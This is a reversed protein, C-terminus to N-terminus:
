DSFATYEWASQIERSGNGFDANTCVANGEIIGAYAAGVTQFWSRSTGAIGTGVVFASGGWTTAGAIGRDVYPLSLRASVAGAGDTGPDGTLFIEVRCKGDRRIFYYYTNTTFLPATGGNTHFFTGTAAGNQATPFTFKTSEHFKGIGDKTTLTQVTWDDSASMRMRISGICLCPNADYVSEDLSDFSFFSTETDAVADDPAGISAEAPSVSARPDRSLMFAITDESDNGVAYIFFPVDQAWAIGTTAGFLNTIIESSGADDIFSQNATVTYKVLEGPTGKSQLYIFAPNTSSLATGDAGCVTFAGASYTVGLNFVRGAISGDLALTGTRNPLTLTVDSTLSPAQLKATNAGGSQGFYAARLGLTASGVDYSNTTKIPISSALSGTVTVDDNTANGLTVAGNFTAAGTVALTSSVTAAAVSIDTSSDTVGNKVASFNGQVQDADAATGNTLTYPYTFFAM